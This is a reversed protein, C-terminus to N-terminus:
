SESGDETPAEGNRRSLKSQRSAVGDLILPWSALNQLFTEKAQRPLDSSTVAASLADALQTFGTTLADRDLVSGTTIANELELKRRLEKQTALKELDMSGYLADIIQGTSFLGNADPAASNKNLAERLANTTL